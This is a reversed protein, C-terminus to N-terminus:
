WLTKINYKPITSDSTVLCMDNNQAQCIILRDFPDKHIMPLTKVNEIEISKISIINIDRELCITEIQPISLQINLKGISQKIAIEWLSVVSVSIDKENALIRKSELSLEDPKCLAYILINTDILYRM